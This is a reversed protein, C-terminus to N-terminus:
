SHFGHPAHLSTAMPWCLEFRHIPLCTNTLCPRGFHATSLPSPSVEWLKRWDSAHRPSQRPFRAFPPSVPSVYLSNNLVFFFLITLELQRTLTLNVWEELFMLLVKFTRIEGPNNPHIALDRWGKGSIKPQWRTIALHRPSALDFRSPSTEGVVSATSRRATCQQVKVM